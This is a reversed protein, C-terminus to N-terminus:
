LPLLPSQYFIETPCAPLIIRSLTLIYFFDFPPTHFRLFLTVKKKQLSKNKGSVSLFLSLKTETKQHKPPKIAKVHFITSSKWATKTQSETSNDTYILFCWGLSFITIVQSYKTVIRQTTAWSAQEEAGQLWIWICFCTLCCSWCGLKLIWM